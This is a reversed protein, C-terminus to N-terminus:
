GLNASYRSLDFIRVDGRVMIMLRCAVVWRGLTCLVTIYGSTM